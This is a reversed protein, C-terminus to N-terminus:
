VVAGTQPSWKVGSYNKAGSNSAAAPASGYSAMQPMPLSDDDDNAAAWASAVEETSAGSWAGPQAGGQPSWKVGSYNKAASPAAAVPAAAAAVPAAAAPAAATGWVGPQAGGQPSWKVGSYNVPAAGGSPAAAVPAIEVPAPASFSSAAPAADWGVSSGGQPSWKTTKYQHLQTSSTGQQGVSFAESSAILAVGAVASFATKM